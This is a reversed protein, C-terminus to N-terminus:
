MDCRPMEWPSWGAVYATQELVAAVQDRNTGAQIIATCIFGARLSHFSLMGTPYGAFEARKKFTERISDANWRWLNAQLVGSPLKESWQEFDELRVGYYLYLHKNLFYVFDMGGATQMRGEISVVHNWATLGKTRTFRIRVIVRDTDEEQEPKFVGIIDKLLVSTITIARAGTYLACLWVSAESAKEVHTDPTLAIIRQIDKGIAADRGSKNMGGKKTRRVDRMANSLYQALEESIKAKTEEEHIRKLSPLIVDEISNVSYCAHIGCFRIFAAAMKCDLPWPSASYSSTFGQYLRRVWTHKLLTAESYRAGELFLRERQEPTIRALAEDIMTWRSPMVPCTSLSALQNEFGDTMEPQM